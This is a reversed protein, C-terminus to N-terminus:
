LFMYFGAVGLAYSITGSGVITQGAKIESRLGWKGSMPYDVGFTVGLYGGITSSDVDSASTSTKFLSAQAIGLSIGIYPVYNRQVFFSSDVTGGDFMIQTHPVLLSYKASLGTIGVKSGLPSPKFTRFHEGGVTWRPSYAYDLFIALGLPGESKSSSDVSSNASGLGLLAGSRLFSYEIAHCPITMLM